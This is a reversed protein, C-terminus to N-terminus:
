SLSIERKKNAIERIKDGMLEFLKDLAWRMAEADNDTGLAAKLDSLNEDQRESLKVGKQITYKESDRDLDKESPKQNSSLFMGIAKKDKDLSTGGLGAM